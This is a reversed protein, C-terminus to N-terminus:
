VPVLRVHPCARAAPRPSLAAGRVAPGAPRELHLPASTGIQPRGVEGEWAEPTPGAREGSLASLPKRGTEAPLKNSWPLEDRVPSPPPIATKRRRYRQWRQM